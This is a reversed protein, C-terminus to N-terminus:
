PRLPCLALTSVRAMQLPLVHPLALQTLRGQSPSLLKTPLFWVCVSVCVYRDPSACLQVPEQQVRIKLVM